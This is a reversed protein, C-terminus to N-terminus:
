NTRQPPTTPDGHLDWDNGQPPRGHTAQYKVREAAHRQREAELTYMKLAPVGFIVVGLVPGLWTGNGVGALLTVASAFFGVYCLWRVVDLENIEIRRREEAM